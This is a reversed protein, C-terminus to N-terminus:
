RTLPAAPTGRPSNQNTSVTIVTKQNTSLHGVVALIHGPHQDLDEPIMFEFAVGVQALLSHPALQRRVAQHHDEHTASKVVLVCDTTHKLLYIVFPTTSSEDFMIM